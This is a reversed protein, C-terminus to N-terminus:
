KNKNLYRDAIAFRLGLSYHTAEWFFLNRNNLNAVGALQLQLKVNKWGARITLAPELFLHSKNSFSNLNSILDPNASIDYGLNTFTVSSIRTSLAIDWIDGTLGFSPQVFVKVFSLDSSGYNPYHHHQESGGLGGYVEFVGTKKIPKYYGIAGDVYGGKAYDLGHSGKASMINTMIGIKDTISYAGQLEISTSEEGAAMAGSLRYENKERFLPVNHINSVYYYHTCSSM